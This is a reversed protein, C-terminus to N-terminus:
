CNIQWHNKNVPIAIRVMPIIVSNTPINIIKAARSQGAEMMPPPIHDPTKMMMAPESVIPAPSYAFLTQKLTPAMTIHIKASTAADKLKNSFKSKVMMYEDRLYPIIPHLPM